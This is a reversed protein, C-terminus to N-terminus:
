IQTVLTLLVCVSPSNDWCPCPSKFCTRIGRNGIWCWFGLCEAMHYKIFPLILTAFSCNKCKENAQSRLIIKISSNEQHISHERLLTSKGVKISQHGYNQNGKLVYVCLQGAICLKLSPKFWINEATNAISHCYKQGPLWGTSSQGSEQFSEM